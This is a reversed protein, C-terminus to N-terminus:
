GSFRGGGLVPPGADLEDAAAALRGILDPRAPRAHPAAGRRAALPRDGRPQGVNAGAPVELGRWTAPKTYVPGELLGSWRARARSRTTASRGSTGSCGRCCGVGGGRRHGAGGVEGGALVYDGISVEDVAMRSAPTRRRGPRRDGRVPRVRLGAPARRAYALPPRRPSPRGSPTPCSWGPRRQRRSPRGPRRARRPVVADLADGWREPKMVMGPGGGYPTDDVTRHMDRPGPACTTCAPRRHRRARRGQRAALRRPRILRERGREPGFYEPFITVIDIRMNLCTELDLLGDPHTSSSAARPWTSTPSSRAVFPVLARPRDSAKCSWCTRARPARM